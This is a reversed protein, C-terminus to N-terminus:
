TDETALPSKDHCIVISINELSFTHRNFKNRSFIKRTCFKNRIVKEGSVPRKEPNTSLVPVAAVQSRDGAPGGTGASTGGSRFEVFTRNKSCYM